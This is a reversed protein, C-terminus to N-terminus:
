GTEFLNFPEHQLYSTAPEVSVSPRAHCEELIVAIGPRHRAKMKQFHKCRAYVYMYM